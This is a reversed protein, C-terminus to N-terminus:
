TVRHWTGVTYQGVAYAFERRCRSSSCNPMVAVFNLAGADLRYRLTINPARNDGPSVLVHNALLRYCHCDDVLRDGQYRLLQGSPDFTVTRDVRKAGSCPDVRSALQDAPGPQLGLTVVAQVAFRGVGADDFATAIKKCTYEVRWTGLIPATSIPTLPLPSGPQPDQDRVLDLLRPSAVVVVAVAAVVAIATAARRIVLLRAGRRRVEELRSLPDVDISTMSRRLGERLRDDIAM